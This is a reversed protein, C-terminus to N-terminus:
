EFFSVLSQARTAHRLRSLAKEKIQRVRERTIGLRTGIEELTMPEDGDLGFYLRLIRSERAKLRALSEFIAQTLAREFTQADPAASEDDTLYDLLRTDDGPSRPADLSLHGMSIAVTKAVAEASLGMGEAIEAHTAERGLEQLLTNAHRGVRHLTGARDLPVRVIRGQEALARLIAQRIWWVAYSIFKVARTEDFRHAARILGLNGENILDSLSVGPNQYKKAVSVVFRLNARVLQELADQDGARIRRALEAERERTILPFASIDHLYHALAGENARGRPKASPKRRAGPALPSPKLLPVV